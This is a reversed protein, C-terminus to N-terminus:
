RWHGEVLVWQGHRHVWHHPAWRAGHHPPRDYHGPVWVYHDGQYQHYGSVWVFGREPPPGPNEYIPAPPGVRIVFQAFSAVPCFTLGFLVALAIKKVM